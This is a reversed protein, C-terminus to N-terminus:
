LVAAVQLVIACNNLIAVMSGSRWLEFGLGTESAVQCPGTM